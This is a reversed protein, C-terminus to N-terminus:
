RPGPSPAQRRPQGAAGQLRAAEDRRGHGSGQEYPGTVAVLRGQPDYTSSTIQGNADTRSSIQGTLPEYTAEAVVGHNDTARVVDANRDPEFTYDVTYRQGAANAPHVVHNYNGYSDFSLDTVAIGHGTDERLQTVAGNACLLDSSRSRLTVGNAVITYSNPLNVWTSSSCDTYTTNSTLVNNANNPEGQDVSTM